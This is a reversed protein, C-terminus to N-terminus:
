QKKENNDTLGNLKLQMVELDLKLQIIQCEMKKM